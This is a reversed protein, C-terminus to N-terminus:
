FLSCNFPISTLLNLILYPSLGCNDFYISLSTARNKFFPRRVSSLRRPRSEFIEFSASKLSLFSAM